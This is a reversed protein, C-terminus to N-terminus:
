ADAKITIARFMACRRFTAVDLPEDHSKSVRLALRLKYRWRAGGTPAGTLVLDPSAM